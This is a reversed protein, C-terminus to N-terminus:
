QSMCVNMLNRSLISFSPYVLMLLVYLKSEPFEYELHVILYSARHYARYYSFLYLLLVIILEFQTLIFLLADSFICELQALFSSEFVLLNDNCFHPLLCNPQFSCAACLCPPMFLHIHHADRLLRYSTYNQYTLCSLCTTIPNHFDKYTMKLLQIEIQLFHLGIM